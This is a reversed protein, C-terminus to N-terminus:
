ECRLSEVPNASAARIAQTIITIMVIALTLVGAFVFVLLNINIHYIYNQLWKNMLYYAIPWSIINAILIIILNERMMLFVIGKISAGLVKRVGIEKKRMQSLQTILSFLGISSVIIAFLCFTFIVKSTQQESKYLNDYSQDLFSFIFPHDPVVKHWESELSKMTSVIDNGKLRLIIGSASWERIFFIIPPVQEKFSRFHIDDVVGIVKQPDSANNIGSLEAGIPNKLNLEKVAERNIIVGESQDTKFDRSFDRGAVIKAQLTNFYDYDIAIQGSHLGQNEKKDKIWVQTFNNVNESPVNGGATVSLVQPYQVIRNKFNQYRSFMDKDYPNTVVLLHEKNFGINTNQM